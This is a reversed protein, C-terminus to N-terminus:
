GFDGPRMGARDYPDAPENCVDKAQALANQYDDTDRWGTETTAHKSIIRSFEQIATIINMINNTDNSIIDDLEDLTKRLYTPIYIIENNELDMFAKIVNEEKQFKAEPKKATIGRMIELMEDFGTGVIDNIEDYEDTFIEKLTDNMCDEFQERLIDSVKM